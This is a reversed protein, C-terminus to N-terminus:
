EVKCEALKIKSNQQLASWGTETVANHCLNLYAFASKSAALAAAGTNSIRNQSLDMHQLSTKLSALGQIGTDTIANEKAFLVRLRQMSGLTILAKDSLGTKVMSLLWISKNQALLGISKENLSNFSLDLGKLTTNTAFAGIGDGVPNATLILYAISKNAALARTGSEGIQAYELEVHTFHTNRSIAIAGKDGLPNNKATLKTVYKLTGLLSVNATNGSIANNDLDLATIDPHANLYSVIAPLRENTITCNFLELSNENDIRSVQADLNSCDRASAHACLFVLLSMLISSFKKM